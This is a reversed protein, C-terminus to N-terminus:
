HNEFVYDMATVVGPGRNRRPFLQVHLHNVLQGAYEGVNICDNRAIIDPKVRLHRHQLMKEAKEASQPTPPNEKLWEYFRVIREPNSDYIDRITQATAPLADVFDELANGRLEELFEFHEKVIVISHGPTSPTVSFIAYAHENEFIIKGEEKKWVPYLKCFIDDSKM